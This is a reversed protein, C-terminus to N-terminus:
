RGALTGADVLITSGTMFASMKSVAFLVVRAVDDPVGARGLPNSAVITAIDLGSDGLSALQEHLGPTDIVTPAVGLVRINHPALELALNKTLGVVAHKSTSYASIGQTGRFGTTSAVNVIVGGARMRKAAERSAAFTGRVNVTLMRDIFDDTVDLAPGTTPYIGANNIWIDLRGFLSLVYEASSALTASDTIDLLYAHHVQDYPRPLTGVAETAGSLDTDGIVVSAGAEALRRCIALGIGKAGGTVIAIHGTLSLLEHSPTNTYDPIPM